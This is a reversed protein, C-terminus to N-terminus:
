KCTELMLLGQVLAANCASHVAEVLTHQPIGWSPSARRLAQAGGAIVSYFPIM